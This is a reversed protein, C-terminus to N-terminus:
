PASRPRRSPPTGSLRVGLSEVRAKLQGNPGVGLERRLTACFERFCQVAAFRNGQTLHAGILADAASESLPEAALAAAGAQIAVAHLGAAAMSRCAAELAQVRLLHFADQTATVWDEHWGPLIEDSLLQLDPLTLGRGGLAGGAVERAHPYDVAADLVLQDGTGIVWGEPVQWLARRLNTRGQTEPIDPWLLDATLARSASGEHIALFAVIRRAPLTLQVMPYVGLRGVIAVRRGSDAGGAQDESAM